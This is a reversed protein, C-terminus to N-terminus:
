GESPEEPAPPRSRPRNLRAKLRAAASTEDSAPYDAVPYDAVPYDAVPYDPASAAPATGLNFTITRMTDSIYRDLNQIPWLFKALGLRNVTRIINFPYLTLQDVNLRILHQVLPGLQEVPNSGAPPSIVAFVQRRLEEVTTLVEVRGNGRLAAQCALRNGDALRREPMWAREAENVPDLQDAGDLVRCQCTQCIANGDCVFGIHAGNRRAVDLLREGLQAEMPVGNVIVTPM